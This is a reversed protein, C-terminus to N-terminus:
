HALTVVGVVSCLVCCAAGHQTVCGGAPDVFCARQPHAGAALLLEAAQHQGSNVAVQLPSTGSFLADLHLANDPVWVFRNIFQRGHRDQHHLRSNRLLEREFGDARDCLLV